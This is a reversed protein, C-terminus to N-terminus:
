ETMQLSNESIGLFDAIERKGAEANEIRVAEDEIVVEIDGDSFHERLREELVAGTQQKQIEEIRESYIKYEATEASIDLKESKFTLVPMIILMAMVTGMVLKVTKKLFGEPLLGMVVSTIFIFATLTLIYSKLKEM